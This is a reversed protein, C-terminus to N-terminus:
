FATRLGAWHDRHRGARPTWRVRTRLVRAVGGTSGVEGRVGRLRVFGPIFNCNNSAYYNSATARSKTWMYFEIEPGLNKNFHFM